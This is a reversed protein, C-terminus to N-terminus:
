FKFGAGFRGTALTLLIGPPTNFVEGEFEGRVFINPTLLWGVGAAFGYVVQSNANFSNSYLYQACAPPTSMNCQADRINSAVAM